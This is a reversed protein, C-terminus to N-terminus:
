MVTQINNLKTNLRNCYKVVTLAIPGFRKTKSANPTIDKVKPALNTLEATTLPSVWVWANVGFRM